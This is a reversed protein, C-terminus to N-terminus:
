RLFVHDGIITTVEKSQLYASYAKDPNYFFLSENDYGQYNIAEEVAVQSEQGAPQYIQGNSVPTFQDSQLIVDRLTDPFLDSEVRNLVVTAVAVKGAYSEGKAEAEVLRSLLDKDSANPMVPMKLKEGPYIIHSRKDNLVMLQHTSIGYNTAIKYLSDGQHVTYQEPQAASVPAAAGIMSAFTVVLILLKKM